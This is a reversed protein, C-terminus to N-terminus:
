LVPPAAGFEDVVPQEVGPRQFRALGCNLPDYALDFEARLTRGAARFAMRGGTPLGGCVAPDYRVADLTVDFFGAVSSAVTVTGGRRLATDPGGAGDVPMAALGSTAYRYLATEVVRGDADRVTTRRTVWPDTTVRTVGAGDVTVTRSGGYAHTRTGGGDDPAERTWSVYDERVVLDAGPARSLAGGALGDVGRVSVEVVGSQALDPAVCRSGDARQFRLELRLPDPVPGDVDPDVGPDLFDVVPCESEALAKARGGTGGKPLASLGALFAPDLSVPPPVSRVSWVLTKLSATELDVPLNSNGVAPAGAGPLDSGPGCGGAVLLAILGAKRAGEVVRVM